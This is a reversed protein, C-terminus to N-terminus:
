MPIGNPLVIQNKEGAKERLGSDDINATTLPYCWNGIGQTPLQLTPSVPRPSLYRNKFINTVKDNFVASLDVSEWISGQNPLANWNIIEKEAYVGPRYEVRMLNTGASVYEKPVVIEESGGAPLEVIKSVIRSGGKLMLEGRVAPGNNKVTFTLSEENQEAPAMLEVTKMVEIDVPMWWVFNGQSMKLFFTKHGNESDILAELKNNKFVADQLIQQPDYVNTIKANKFEAKFLEKYLAPSVSPQEFSDGDWAVEI